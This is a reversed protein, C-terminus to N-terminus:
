ALNALIQVQFNTQNPFREISADAWTVKFEGQFLGATNTDATQWAYSVIGNTPPSVITCTALDIVVSGAANTMTFKVNSATTLDVVDGGALLTAYLIPRTDGVKMSWKPIAM